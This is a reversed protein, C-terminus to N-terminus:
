LHSLTFLFLLFDFNGKTLYKIINNIIEIKNAKDCSIASDITTHSNGSNEITLNLLKVGPSTIKIVDGKGDGKIIASKDKGDITIPKNIIINCSYVGSGLEIIDGSSASDIADQLDNGFTFSYLLAILCLKKM